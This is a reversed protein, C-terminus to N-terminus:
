PGSVAGGPMVAGSAVGGLMVAGGPMVAGGAVVGLM